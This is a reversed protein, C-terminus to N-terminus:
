GTLYMDLRLVMQPAPPFRVVSQPVKDSLTAQLFVHCHLLLHRFLLLALLAVIGQQATTARRLDLQQGLVMLVRAVPVRHLLAM